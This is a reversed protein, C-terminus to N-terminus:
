KMQAVLLKLFADKDLKGGPTDSSKTATSNSTASASTDVLKGNQIAQTIAM